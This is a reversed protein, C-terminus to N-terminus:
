FFLVGFSFRGRVTAVGPIISSLFGLVWLELREDGKCHFQLETEFELFSGLLFVRVDAGSRKEWIRVKIAVPCLTFGSSFM